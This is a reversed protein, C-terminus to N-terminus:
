VQIGLFIGFKVQESGARGAFIPVYGSLEQNYVARMM